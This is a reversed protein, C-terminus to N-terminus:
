CELRALLQHALEVRRWDVSAFVNAMRNALHHTLDCTSRHCDADLQRLTAAIGNLYHYLHWGAASLRKRVDKSYTIAEELPVFVSWFWGERRRLAACNFFPNLPSM